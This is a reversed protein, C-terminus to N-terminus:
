FHCLSIYILITSATPTFHCGYPFYSSMTSCYMFSLFTLLNLPNSCALFSHLSLFSKQWPFELPSNRSVPMRYIYVVASHVCVEMVEKWCCGRKMCEERNPSPSPLCDFRENLPVDDCMALAPKAPAFSSQPPEHTLKEDLLNDRPSHLSYILCDIGCKIRRKGMNNVWDRYANLKHTDTKSYTLMNQSLAQPPFSEQRLINRGQYYPVIIFSFFTTTLFLGFLLFLGTVM